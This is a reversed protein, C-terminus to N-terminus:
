RRSCFDLAPYIRGDFKQLVKKSAEYDVDALIMFVANKASFECRSLVDKAMAESVGTAMCVINIARGVLKENAAKLDVMLNGYTKGLKIMTVTSLMNLVMKQATGSKMRTSGTIVEPGPLPAIDVDAFKSIESNQTCSLSVTFGSVSRAYEMAGKVYPTRGSAAIGVLADGGSFNIDKLDMRGLERDDEAGETAKIFADAGGALLAVVMDYEVSFTPPCEVADLLGLRGSTGAGAYVLRGGDRLREYIGDAAAAIAPIVAEVADAVKKDESNILRVTEITSLKDIDGTAENRKETDLLALKGIDM